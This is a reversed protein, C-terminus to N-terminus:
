ASAPEQSGSFQLHYLRAYAGGRALLERHSGSEVVHGAEIVHICDADQVTSLRHAIVLTTRGRRLHTLADQIKRESETDLASTAEDLLLIPADKLIARAISLRQRQGGSLKVGQEGVRTQYGDPMAMIFDHAAAAKAAAIIESENAGQRAYAINAAVTDDFIVVDQSVLAINRRLSDLTVTRVDQGDITIRGETLDYFRPILNIITTKGGGSPGVLAVTQGSPVALSVGKLAETGDDYFFRAGHFAIAGGNIHLPKADHADVIRIPTDMVRFVRECLAVGEQLQTNLRSLRKVPEYAMLFATIFSFFNGTTKVGAIVQAGGYLIVTVVALGGLAEMMPSAASRVRNAKNIQITLLDVSANIRQQEFGEQRSAKVQRIGRFAQGLLSGMMGLEHQSMGTIKRMRKGLRAIPYIALPFVFFAILALKWDQWFMVIVLTVLTLTDKGLTIIANSAVSQLLRIDSTFHSVLTGTPREHFFGLDAHIIKAFLRKKLEAVVTNGILGLYFAQGYGALAKIIFVAMVGLAVPLLMDGNRAVFIQDLVPEILKALAGTTAAETAMLLFAVIFKRWHPRVYDRIM